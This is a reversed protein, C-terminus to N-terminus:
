YGPAVLHLYRVADFAWLFLFFFFFFFLSQSISAFCRRKFSVSLSKLFTTVTMVFGIGFPFM